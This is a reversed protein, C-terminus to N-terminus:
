NDLRSGPADQSAALLGPLELQQYLPPRRYERYGLLYFRHRAYSGWRRGPRARGRGQARDRRGAEYGAILHGIM